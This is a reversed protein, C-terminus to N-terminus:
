GLGSLVIPDSECVHRGRKNFYAELLREKEKGTPVPVKAFPQGLKRSLYYGWLNTLQLIRRIYCLSYKCEYFYDYFRFMEDYWDTPVLQIELLMKQVARSTRLFRKRWDPGNLRGARARAQDITMTPQFGLSYWHSKPIDWEKKPKKAKSNIVHAKKHSAFQLKWHQPKYKPKLVRVYYGM